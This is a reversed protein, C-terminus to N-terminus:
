QALGTVAFLPAQDFLSTFDSSKRPRLEGFVDDAM